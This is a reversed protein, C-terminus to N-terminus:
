GLVEAVVRLFEPRLRGIALVILGLFCKAPHCLAVVVKCPSSLCGPESMLRTPAAKGLAPCRIGFSSPDLLCSSRVHRIRVSIVVIDSDLSIRTKLDDQAIRQRKDLDYSLDFAPNGNVFIGSAASLADLRTTDADLLNTPHVRSQRPAHRRWIGALLVEAFKQTLTSLLLNISILSLPRRLANEAKTTTAALYQRCAM